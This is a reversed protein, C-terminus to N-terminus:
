LYIGNENKISLNDLQLNMVKDYASPYENKLRSLLATCYRIDMKCDNGYLHIYRVSNPALIFNEYGKFAVDMEDMDTVSSYCNVKQHHDAAMQTLFLQEFIINYLGNKEKVLQDHNADVFRFAQDAFSRMFAPNTSGLIGTNYVPIDADNKFRQILSPVAPFRAIIEGVLFPYVDASCELNQVIMSNEQTSFSIKDWIFLDTDIHIFPEEQMSCAYIKGLSWLSTDYDQLFDLSISVKDYPIQLLDVFIMKGLSDTVLELKKYYKKIQLASYVVSAFYAVPDLWGGSFRTENSGDREFIPKTWVSQVVKM